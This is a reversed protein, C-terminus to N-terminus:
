NDAYHYIMSSVVLVWGNYEYGIYTVGNHMDDDVNSGYTERTEHM